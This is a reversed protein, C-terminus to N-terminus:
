GKLILRAILFILNLGTGAIVFNNIVLSQMYVINTSQVGVLFAAVIVQFTDLWINVIWGDLM